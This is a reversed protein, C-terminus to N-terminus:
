VGSGSHERGRPLAAGQRVAHHQHHRAGLRGHMAEAAVAYYDPVVFDIVLVGKLRTRAEAVLDASRLVQERTPMLAPRNQLAWGYYQVHAVELRQAGLRVALEIIAPLCDINQRHVPANLTLPLGVARVWGAM